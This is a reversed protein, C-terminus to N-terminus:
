KGHEQEKSLLARARLWPCEKAHPFHDIEFDAVGTDCRECVYLEGDSTDRMYVPEAEDSSLLYLLSRAEDKWAKLRDVERQFMQAIGAAEGKTEVIMRPRTEWLNRLQALQQELEQVLEIASRGCGLCKNVEEMVLPFTHKHKGPQLVALLSENTQPTEEMGLTARTIKATQKCVHVYHGPSTPLFSKGCATCLMTMTESM